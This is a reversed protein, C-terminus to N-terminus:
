RVLEEEVKRRRRKKKEEGGVVGVLAAVLREQTRPRLRQESRWRVPAAVLAKHLWCNAM